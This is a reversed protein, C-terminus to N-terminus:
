FGSARTYALMDNRELARQVAIRALLLEQRVAGAHYASGVDGDRLSGEAITSLTERLTEGTEHLTEELAAAERELAQFAAFGEAPAAEESGAFLGDLRERREDLTAIREAVAAAADETPESRFRQFAVLTELLAVETEALRANEVATDGFEAFLGDVQRMGLGSFAALGALAVVLLGFGAFIKLKLSM